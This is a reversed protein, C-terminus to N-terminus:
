SSYYEKCDRYIDILDNYILFEFIDDENCLEPREYEEFFDEIRKIIFDKDINKVFLLSELISFNLETREELISSLSNQILIEISNLILKKNEKSNLSSQNNEIIFFNLNKLFLENLNNKVSNLEPKDIPTNIVESENLNDKVSDSELKDIFQNIARSESVWDEEIDLLVENYLYNEFKPIIDSILIEKIKSIESTTCSYLNNLINVQKDINQSLNTEIYDPGTKEHLHFYLPNITYTRIGQSFVNNRCLEELKDLDLEELKIPITEIFYTNKIIKKILTVDERYKKMSSNLM